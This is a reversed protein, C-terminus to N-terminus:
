KNFISHAHSVVCSEAVVLGLFLRRELRHRRGPRARAAAPGEAADEQVRHDVGAVDGGDVGVAGVASLAPFLALRSVIQCILEKLTEAM